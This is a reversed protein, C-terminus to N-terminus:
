ALHARRQGQGLDLLTVDLLHHLEGLAVFRAGRADELDGPRGEQLLELAHAVAIPIDLFRAHLSISCVAYTTSMDNARGHGGICSDPVRVGGREYTMAFAYGPGGWGGPAVM